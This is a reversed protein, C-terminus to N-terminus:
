MKNRKYTIFEYKLKSDDFCQDEIKKFNAYNIAPMQTDTQFNEKVITQYLIDVQDRYMKFLTAGGIIVSLQEKSQATLWEDLEEKSHVVKVNSDIADLNSHTLVIHKRGPLIGPLSEFTRRGMIMPHNMTKEKFRKLDAALHWPLHGDIGIGGTLDEAWIYALM